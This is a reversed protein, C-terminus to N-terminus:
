LCESHYSNNWALSRGTRDREQASQSTLLSLSLSIVLGDQLVTAIFIQGEQLARLCRAKLGHSDVAEDECVGPNKERRQWKGELEKRDSEAM